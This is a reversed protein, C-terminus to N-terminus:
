QVNLAADDVYFTSSAASDTTGLFAVQIQKGKYSSLSSTVDFSYQTWGQADINCKTQVTSITAATTTRLRVRFYDYCTTTSTENTGIYLWYSLTVKSATSPITVTQYITDTCSNYGCLDASNSGTHPNSSDVIEYGGSSSETWSSSGSEFGGNTLINGGTPTPTPTAGIPTPTPTPGVATPTPTPNVPTPTPSGTGFQIDLIAHLEIGNPAVGTQGHLFDFFGVGTVTVPVNAAQFGSNPTYRADFEARAKKIGTLFPSSAGTCAPDPIEVIMTKGTSDALVLHYDSDAELKYETLTDQLQYQTSETPKIRNNSPLTGPKALSTLYSITTPTVSQLNVSSADADTGTKVSWREVGCSGTSSKPNVVFAEKDTDTEADKDQQVADKDTPTAHSMVAYRVSGIGVVLAVILVLVLTIINNRKM